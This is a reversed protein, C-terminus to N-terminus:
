ERRLRAREVSLRISLYSGAYFVAVSTVFAALSVGAVSIGLGSAAFPNAGATQVYSSVTSAGGLGLAFLCVAVLTALGGTGLGVYRAFDEVDIVTHAQSETLPALRIRYVSAGVLLTAGLLQLVGGFAGLLVAKPSAVAPDAAPLYAAVDAPFLGYVPLLIALLGLFASQLTLTRPVSQRFFSHREYRLRQYTSGSLIAQTIQDDSKTDSDM